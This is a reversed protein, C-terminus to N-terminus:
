ATRETSTTGMGPPTIAAPPEGFKTSKKSASTRKEPLQLGFRRILNASDAWRAHGLWAATFKQMRETDGRGRYIKLKRRARTVSSKRLLKHTTWIRYGLFNIGRTISAISWKSFTLGLRDLAYDEISKQVSRLHDSSDGLVVVDDMYRYWLHEGLTQQLHRDLTAGLYLNAFIQSTLSGIPLGVGDRPVIAEIMRLTARCSIKAKILHWLTERNISAFYSRFDTKLFYLSAANRSMRRMDSQLQVVGAHVGKGPRCAFARPLLTAEFIPGIVLCLAQQAIRDRFPLATILRKKPDFVHFQRPEGSVYHGNAMDRALDALNLPAYEKFELYGSTQRKGACTLRYAEAMNDPSVINGILNRFRRTMDNGLPFLAPRPDRRTAGSRGAIGSRPTYEGFCSLRASWWGQSSTAPRRSRSRRRASVQDDSRGRAGLNDNSNNNWNDLNAFRSGANNDNIWSGGFLSARPQMM